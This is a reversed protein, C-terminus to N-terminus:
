DDIGIDGSNDEKIYGLFFVLFLHLLNVGGYMYAISCSLDQLFM